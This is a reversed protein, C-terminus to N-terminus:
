KAAPCSLVRAAGYAPGGLMSEECGARVKMVWATVEAWRTDSLDRLADVGYTPLYPITRVAGWAVLALLLWVVPTVSVRLGFRLISFGAAVVGLLLVLDGVYVPPLGLHAFGRGLFM